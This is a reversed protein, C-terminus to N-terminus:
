ELGFSRFLDAAARMEVNGGSVVVGVRGPLEPPDDSFLVAAAVAGTPEVVLKMRQWLFHMARVIAEEDVTIMEDVHELILPFTIRGLSPTRAGDAITDPNKIAHLIGTRFSRAADDAASPEVGVVRCRPLLTRAAVASGSLLGGGGCCVLLLDLEGVSEILERAATGQGAVIHPHDYPPILPLARDAAIEEALAERTVQERDYPIIEAGYGRTAELKVRPADSPMIITTAIGLMRGALSLAQAHNGSSYTLVGRRREDESLQALANYAGRFKFAGARQFNECKFFFRSDFREDLSRSTHIPTVHAAGALREAAAEIDPYTVSHDPV